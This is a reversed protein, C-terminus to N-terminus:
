IATLRKNLEKLQVDIDSVSSEYNAKKRMSENLKADLDQLDRGYINLDMPAEKKEVVNLDKDIFSKMETKLTNLVNGIDNSNIGSSCIENMAKLCKELNACMNKTLDEIRQQNKKTKQQASVMKRKTVLIENFCKSEINEYKTCKAVCLGRMNEYDAIDAKISKIKCSEEEDNEIEEDEDFDEEDFDEEDEDEDFESTQSEKTDEILESHKVNVFNIPLKIKNGAAVDKTTIQSDCCMSNPHEHFLCARLPNMYNKCHKNESPSHFSCSTFKQPFIHKRNGTVCAFDNGKCNENFCIENLDSVSVCMKGEYIETHFYCHDRQKQRECNPFTCRKCSITKDKACDIKQLLLDNKSRVVQLVINQSDVYFYGKNNEKM